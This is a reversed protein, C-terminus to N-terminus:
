EEDFRSVAKGKAASAPSVNCLWPYLDLLTHALVRTTYFSNKLFNNFYFAYVPSVRIVFFYLTRLSYLNLLQIEYSTIFTPHFFHIRFPLPSLIDRFPYWNSYM